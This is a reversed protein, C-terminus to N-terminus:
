TRLLQTPSFTSPASSLLLNSAGAPALPPQSYRLAYSLIPAYSPLFALPSLAPYLIHASLSQCVCPPSACAAPWPCIGSPYTYTHPASFFGPEHRFYGRDRMVQAADAWCAACQPVDQFCIVCFLTKTFVVKCNFHAAYPHSPSAGAAGRLLTCGLVPLRCLPQLRTRAQLLRRTRPVRISHCTM